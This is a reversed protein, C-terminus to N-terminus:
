VGAISRETLWSVSSRRIAGGKNALSSSRSPTSQKSRSFSVWGKFHWCGEMSRWSASCWSPEHDVLGLLLLSRLGSFAIGDSFTFRR